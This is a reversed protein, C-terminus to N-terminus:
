FLKRVKRWQSKAAWTTWAGLSRDRRDPISRREVEGPPPERRQRRDACRREEQRISLGILGALLLVVLACYDATSM